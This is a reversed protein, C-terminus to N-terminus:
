LDTDRCRPMETRWGMLGGKIKTLHTDHCRRGGGGASILDCILQLAVYLDGRRNHYHHAAAALSVPRQATLTTASYLYIKFFSFGFCCASAPHCPPSPLTSKDGEPTILVLIAKFFGKKYIYNNNTNKHCPKATLPFLFSSKESNATFHKPNLKLFTEPTVNLM